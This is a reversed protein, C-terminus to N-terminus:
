IHRNADFPEDTWWFLTKVNIGGLIYDTAPKAGLATAGTDALGAQDM